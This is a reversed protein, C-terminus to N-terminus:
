DPIDEDAIEQNQKKQEEESKAMEIIKEVADPNDLLTQKLEEIPSGPKKM